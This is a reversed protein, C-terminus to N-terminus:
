PNLVAQFSAYGELTIDCSSPGECRTVQANMVWSLEVQGNAPETISPVTVTQADPLTTGEQWTQQAGDTTTFGAKWSKSNQVPLTSDWRVTDGSRLSPPKTHPLSSGVDLTDVTVTFTSSDDSLVLTRPTTKSEPLLLFSPFQCRLNPDEVDPDYRGASANIPQEDLTVTFHELTGCATVDTDWTLLAQLAGGKQRQATLTPDAMTAMTPPPRQCALSSAVVLGALLLRLLSM